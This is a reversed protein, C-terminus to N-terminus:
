SLLDVRDASGKLGGLGDGILSRHCAL